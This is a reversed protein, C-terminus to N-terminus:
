SAKGQGCLERYLKEVKKVYNRTERYPPVGGYKKVAGMGANYSALALIIHQMTLAEGKSYKDLRGRLLYISGALNQVPDYPNSLGLKKAEDPMLQGLGMAGKHSTVNPNFSSEAIVLAIVLRPDVGYRESFLLISATIDDVDAEGLRKNYKRIFARYPDFVARADASLSNFLQGARGSSVAGRSSLAGRSVGGSAPPAAKPSAAKAPPERRAAARQAVQTQWRREAATIDSDSAVAVVQLNPLGITTGSKASGAVVALVRLRDGPQVWSPAETMQLTLTGDRDTALLFSAGEDNKAVGLLRGAVELLMGRCTDPRQAVTGLTLGRSPPYARRAKLYQESPSDAYAKSPFVAATLLLAGVVPYLKWGHM